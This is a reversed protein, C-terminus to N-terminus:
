HRVEHVMDMRLRLPRHSKVGGVVKLHNISSEAPPLKQTTQLPPLFTKLNRWFELTQGGRSEGLKGLHVEYVKRPTASQHGDRRRGQPCVQADAVVGFHVEGGGLKGESAPTAVEAKDENQGPFPCLEDRAAEALELM